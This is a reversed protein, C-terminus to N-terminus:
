NEFSSLTHRVVKNSDAIDFKKGSMPNIFMKCGEMKVIGTTPAFWVFAEYLQINSVFPNSIDPINISVIYKFKETSHPSDFGELQLSEAGVYEGVISFIIFKFTGFNAGADFVKFQKKDLFPFNILKFVKDFILKIEIEISDPILEAVGSSDAFYDISTETISFKSQSNTFIGNVNYKESCLFFSEDEGTGMNDVSVFRTGINEFSETSRNLTDVNYNFKDGLDSPFFNRIDSSYDVFTESEPDTEADPETSSEECGVLLLILLFISLSLLYKKMKTEKMKCDIKLKQYIM